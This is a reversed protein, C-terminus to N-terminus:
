SKYVRKHIQKHFKGARVGEYFDQDEICRQSIRYEMVLCDQLTMTEGDLLQRLTVKM